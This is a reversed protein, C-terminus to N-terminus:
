ALVFESNLRISGTFQKVKNVLDDLNFPKYLIDNAKSYNLQQEQLRDIASILIIPLSQDKQKIRHSIELGNVGPMMIDMLILEPQMSELFTLAERGNHAITVEYGESELLLKFLLQLDSNDEVVLISHTM